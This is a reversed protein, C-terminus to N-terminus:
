CFVHSSVVGEELVADEAGEDEAERAFGLPGEVGVAEEEGSDRGRVRGKCFGVEIHVLGVASVEGVEVDRAYVVGGEDEALL